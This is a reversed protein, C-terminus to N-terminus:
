LVTTCHGGVSIIVAGFKMFISEMTLVAKAPASV